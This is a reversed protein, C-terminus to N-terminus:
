VFSPIIDCECFDVFRSFPLSIMATITVRDSELTFSDFDELIKKQDAM